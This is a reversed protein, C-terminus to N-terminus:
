YKTNSKISPRACVKVLTPGHPPPPKVVWFYSGKWGNSVGKRQCSVGKEQFTVAKELFYASKGLVWYFKLTSADKQNEGKMKGRM